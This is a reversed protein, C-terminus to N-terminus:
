ARISSHTAKGKELSDEWGPISGLDGANCASEEGASGCPFSLKSHQCGAIMTFVPLRAAVLPLLFPVPEQLAKNGSLTGLDNNTRDPLERSSESPHSERVSRVWNSIRKGSPM